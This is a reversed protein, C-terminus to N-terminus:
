KKVFFLGPIIGRAWALMDSPLLELGM